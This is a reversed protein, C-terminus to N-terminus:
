GADIVFTMVASSTRSFAPSSSTTVNVSLAVFFRSDPATLRSTVAPSLIGTRSQRYPSSKFDALSTAFPSASCTAPLTGAKAPLIFSFAFARPHVAVLKTFGLPRFLAEWRVVGCSMASIVAAHKSFAAKRSISFDVVYWKGAVSFRGSPVFMVMPCM